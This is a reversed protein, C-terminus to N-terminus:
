TKRREAVFRRGLPAILGLRILELEHTRLAEVLATDAAASAVYRFFYAADEAIILSGFAQLAEEIAPAPHLGPHYQGRWAALPTQGGAALEGLLDSGELVTGAPALLRLLSAFWGLTAEDAFGFDFDEVIVRGGAALAAFAAAVGAELDEVHHLSRTFLVADFGAATFEPWAALDAAVGRSRAAEVCAPDSDIAVIELGDAQLRAALAGDGCGIELLRRAGEPLAHCVFSHTYDTAPDAAYDETGAGVRSLGKVKV